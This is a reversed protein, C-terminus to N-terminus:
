VFELLKSLPVTDGVSEIGSEEPKENPEEAVSEIDSEEPKENPEEAVSEIGSEEPKEDPAVKIDPEEPEANLDDVDSEDAGEYEWDNPDSPSEDGGILPSQGLINFGLDMEDYIDGGFILSTM